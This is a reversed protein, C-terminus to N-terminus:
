KRKYTTEEEMMEKYLCYDDYNGDVKLLGDKQLEWIKSAIKNLFYRDHSVFLLSGDFDLLKEELEERSPLDLHNTPEDLILLNPNKSMLISLKLKKKEGGSLVKIKKYVDDQTFMLKALQNRAKSTDEGTELCYADLISQEPDSFESEQDLFGVRLNEGIHITGTDPKEKELICRLLTTKGVGNDGIIGVSDNGIIEGSVHEFLRKDFSKSVDDLELIRKKAAVNGSLALRIKRNDVKPKDIKDMKELRAEIQHAKAKLVNSGTSQMWKIQERMRKINKQQDNYDKQLESFRREKEEIYYSYNGNYVQAETTTLEIIQNVAKDLFYRDHSVVIISGDFNAIYEELWELSSLDLYNTPEDLLIIQPSEILLKALLVKTKQGGSLESFKKNCFEETFNFGSLISSVKYEIDYGGLLEFKEQLVGYLKMNTDLNGENNSMKDELERMKNSAESIEKYSLSLVESVTMNPYNPQQEVYGIKVDSKKIIEGNDATELKSLIKLLTSKGVGNKGVLGIKCKENLVFSIDKFLTKEGYSKSLGNIKLIEM